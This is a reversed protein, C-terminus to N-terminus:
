GHAGLNRSAFAAIREVAEKAERIFPLLPFVHFMEDWIELTVDVGAKRAKDACRTADDLLIEDAGAQILLPPLGHLDAYLPSILPSRVDHEGAYAKAYLDLTNPDLVVDVQAKTQISEGTSALDTWPSICVAGAPLAEGADRLVLLTALALGGGASDGAIMIQSAEYGQAILWHYAATADELAAPYPHEPALRYDLLLGRMGTASALRGVFERHTKISGLAYAGGHLYLIAGSDMGAAQILEAPVGNASLPQCRVDKPLRAIRSSKEQSVRQEEITGKSWGSTQLSVIRKIIKTRLTM